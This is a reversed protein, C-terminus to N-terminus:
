VAERPHQRAAYRGLHHDADGFANALVAIRRFYHSIDLEDTVGIAGHLQVAEKAIMRAEESVLHKAAAVTHAAASHGEAIAQAAKLTIASCQEQAVKMDVLRHQLVQFGALEQGFAKREQLYALTKTNLMTAGGCMEACAAVCADDLVANLITFTNAGNDIRAAAPVSVGDLVVEAAGSGDINRVPRFSLGPANRDIIFLNLGSEDCVNGGSRALVILLDAEDAGFVMSKQGDIRWADGYEKARTACYSRCYRGEAEGHAFAARLKGDAINAIVDGIQETLAVRRLVGGALIVTPVYPEIVLGRGLGELVLAIDLMSGSLGGMEEPFPLAMLGLEALQSWTRSGDATRLRRRRHDFDHEDAVFRHLMDTLQLQEDSWGFRM